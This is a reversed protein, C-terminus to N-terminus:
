LTVRQKRFLGATVGLGIVALLIVTVALQMPTIGGALELIKLGIRAPISDPNKSIASMFRPGGVFLVMWLAWLVWFFKASFRMWLAGFLLILVPAGFIIGILAGVNHLLPDISFECVEQPCIAPYIIGELWNILMVVALMVLVNLVLGLYRAPVFYKRTKGMSIAVNFEGQVSFIGGFFVLIIGFVLALLAGLKGYGEGAGAFIIICFVVLLIGFIGGGATVAIYSFIDAKGHVWFTQKLTRVFEKM